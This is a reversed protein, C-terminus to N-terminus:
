ALDMLKILAMAKINLSDPLFQDREAKMFANLTIEILSNLGSKEEVLKNLAAQLQPKTLNFDNM